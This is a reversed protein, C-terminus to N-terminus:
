IVLGNHDKEAVMKIDGLANRTFVFCFLVWYLSHFLCLLWGTKNEQKQQVKNKLVRYM